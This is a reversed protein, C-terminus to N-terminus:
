WRGAHGHRVATWAAPAYPHWGVSGVGLPRGRHAAPVGRHPRDEGDGVRRIDPRASWQGAECRHWLAVADRPVFHTGATAHAYGWTGRLSESGHDGLADVVHLDALCGTDDKAQTAQPQGVKAGGAAPPVSPGPSGEVRGILQCGGLNLREELRGPPGGRGAV